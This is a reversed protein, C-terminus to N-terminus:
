IWFSISFFNFINEFSCKCCPFLIDWRCLYSLLVTVLCGSKNITGTQTICISRYDAEEAQRIGEPWNLRQILKHFL